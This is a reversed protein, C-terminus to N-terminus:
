PMWLDYDCLNWRFTVAVKPLKWPNNRRIHSKEIGQILLNPYVTYCGQKQTQLSVLHEDIPAVSDWTEVIDRMISSGYLAYAHAGLTGHCTYVDEKPEIALWSMQAAGLYMLQVDDPVKVDSWRSAFSKHFIIDDECILIQDHKRQLADKICALHSLTCAYASGPGRFGSPPRKNRGDIAPFVTIHRAFCALGHVDIQNLVGRRRDHDDELNIIYVRDFM